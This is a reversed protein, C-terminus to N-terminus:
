MYRALLFHIFSFRFPLFTELSKQLPKNNSMPEEFYKWIISVLNLPVNVHTGVRYDFVCFTFHDLYDM